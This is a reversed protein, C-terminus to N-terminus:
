SRAPGPTLEEFPPTDTDRGREAEREKSNNMIDLEAFIKEAAPKGFKYFVAPTVVQDLLTSTLIGGLVVVALPHLIEKGPADAALIFPVLSLGATLATMLVPVLRELSGRIIMEETFGEGEERMLHLYHSIMMIGNRSTIGVLSIFGVLTAISFVGGSLHLAFIAGILALPINIMVQLSSRWDGLAKILLFFIAALSFLSLLSLTRTADQSAQFQGGYELFYGQPLTVQAAVRSEIDGVVSGLDRGGTNASIVIRRKANERLIQNPGPLNEIDAVAAVPIQTGQPTDVTVSRLADLSNRSADDFRVVVDYRRAGEIAQSVTRGNLATELTETVEGPALGYQAARARDVDFRVQPILVQKEIQVDTAGEVTEITNRIEEAKSRLVSLDDGFLKVAIQARVGSQLHDLRHSIPQGVNVSVGPVVALKDRIDALIEERSRGERLDVDIETYHVGEAHEDLEARGTRRGTSIVEPVGLLLKEAIQGIRNSESLSTGPTALVNITLTGENFDPLFATGVFPLTAVTLVFLLAAGTIVKYPHRLTWHLIREDRAKLWRVIFSEKEERMAKMKPLLYSALVPTVTLSVVLSAVLATIYALGLPALLRGEVGTLMFLPLFVLAVIVTAYVISTRVELSALYIVELAPRPNDLHRNERLRRFINEIDVIADDVLEGIAVALGGLTMTNISIGFAWLVLFTVVFSLPIATLTIFTTRLNLLFLFLIIAVLIAGDRLAEAVNGISAEIFSSQRFLRTNVEVDPPLTPQLEKMAADVKETLDVTDAGPQKQVSMIVAPKGNTGADGRKIRAGFEVNAVDGLRVGTNNRYAVVTQKLEELTYFRGLNRVLYEQSQADVFGGTTNANAKELATSVDEITVGFQKLREPSVLVQYQKVGGGIPIVQSIGSISLLRPRITWDAITRIELPDTTGDRSSVSILMIEGMISSIPALFPSVGEPLQERAETIKEAVLQRNRYIDTGWDFEVYVISLGIGSQSRVRSVGPVGNMVTEIPFSVQTEVEEPALGEAETLITITPKNLDPFVDVPLNLAVYVGWVLMLAAIAVVILRNNLSWKIVANLM